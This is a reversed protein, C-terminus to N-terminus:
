FLSYKIYERSNKKLSIGNVCFLPNAKPWSPTVPIANIRGAPAIRRKKWGVQKGERWVCLYFIQFVKSICQADPMLLCHDKLYPFLHPLGQEQGLQSGQTELGYCLLPFGAFGSRSESTLFCSLSWPPWFCSLAALFCYGLSGCPAWSSYAATSM